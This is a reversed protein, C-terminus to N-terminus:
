CKNALNIHKFKSKGLPDKDVDEQTRPREHIKKVHLDRARELWFKKPCFPCECRKEHSKRVHSNMLSITAFKLPCGEYSCGITRDKEEFHEQDFHVVLDEKTLFAQTPVPCDDYMCYFKIGRKRYRLLAACSEEHKRLSEKFRYMKGCKGCSMRRKKRANVPKSVKFEPDEDDLGVEEGANLANKLTTMPKETPPLPVIDDKSKTINLLVGQSWGPKYKIDELCKQRWNGSELDMAHALHESITVGNENKRKVREGRGYHVEEQHDFCNELLLKLETVINETERIVAEMVNASEEDWQAKKVMLAWLGLQEFLVPGVAEVLTDVSVRQALDELLVKSDPESNLLERKMNADIGLKKFVQNSSDNGSDSQQVRQATQIVNQSGLASLPAPFVEGNEGESDQSLDSPMMMITDTHIIMGSADEIQVKVGGEVMHGEVQTGGELGLGEMPSPGLPVQQSLSTRQDQTWTAGSEPSSSTSALASANYRRLHENGRDHTQLVSLKPFLTKHCVRCYAHESGDEARAIWNFRLAWSSQYRRKSDYSSKWKSSACSLPSDMIDTPNAEDM